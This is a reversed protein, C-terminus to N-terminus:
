AVPVAVRRRGKGLRSPRQLCPAARRLWGVRGASELPMPATTTRGAGDVTSGGGRRRSRPSWDRLGPRHRNRRLSPRTSARRRDLRPGIPRSMPVGRVAGRGARRGGGFRRRGPPVIRRRARRPRVGRGRPVEFRCMGAAAPIWAGADPGRPTWPQDNPLFRRRGSILNSGRRGRPDMWGGISAHDSLPVDVRWCCQFRRLDRGLSAPQHDGGAVSLQRKEVRAVTAREAGVDHLTSGGAHHEGGGPVAYQGRIHAAGNLEEFDGVAPAGNLPPRSGHHDGSQMPFGASVARDPARDLALPSDPVKGGAARGALPEGM